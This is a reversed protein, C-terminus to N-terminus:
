GVVFTCLRAAAKIKLFMNTLRAISGKKDSRYGANLRKSSLLATLEIENLRSIRIKGINKLVSKSKQLSRQSPLEIFMSGRSGRNPTEGAGRQLYLEEAGWNKEAL